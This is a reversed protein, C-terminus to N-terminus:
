LPTPPQTGFCLFPRRWLSTKSDERLIRRVVPLALPAEATTAEAEKSFCKQFLVM